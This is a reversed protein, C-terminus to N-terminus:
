TKRSLDKMSDFKNDTYVQIKGKYGWYRILAVMISLLIKGYPLNPKLELSGNNMSVHIHSDPSIKDEDLIIEHAFTNRTNYIHGIVSDFDKCKGGGYSNVFVQKEKQSLFNMVIKLREGLSRKKKVIQGDNLHDDKEEKTYQDVFGILLLLICTYWIKPGFFTNMNSKDDEKRKEKYKLVELSDLYFGLYTLQKNFPEDKGSPFKTDLFICLSSDHELSWEGFYINEKGFIKSLKQYIIHINDSM